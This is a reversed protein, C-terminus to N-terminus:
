SIRLQSWPTSKSPATNYFRSVSYDKEEIGEELLASTTSGKGMVATDAKLRKKAPKGEEDEEGDVEYDELGENDEEDKEEVDEELLASTTSGKGMAATDARLRKKAPKGEEDQEEDVEYDELGENDEEDKEEVDEELLASTTSGKGMAATDARLRKKAPKGEEDQEEDVEYDELGENDKEDKEEVEEELLASTTYGLGWTATDAWLCNQVPQGEDDKEEDEGEDEHQEAEGHEAEMSWTGDLLSSVNSCSRTSSVNSCSRTPLYNPDDFQEDGHFQEDDEDDDCQEDRRGGGNALIRAINALLADCSAEVEEEVEEDSSNYDPRGRVTEDSM